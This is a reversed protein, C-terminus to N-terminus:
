VFASITWLLEFIKMVPMEFVFALKSSFGQWSRVISSTLLSKQIMM